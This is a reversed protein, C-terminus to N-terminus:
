AKTPLPLKLAGEVDGTEALLAAVEILARSKAGYMSSDPDNSDSLKNAADQVPKILKSLRSQSKVDLVDIQKKVAAANPVTPDVALYAELWCIARLERGPINSEAVGLKYYIDPEGPAIKRAAQFYRIALLYDQADKAALIGKDVAAQADPPLDARGFSILSFYILALLIHSKM